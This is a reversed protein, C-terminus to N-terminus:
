RGMISLHVTRDIRNEYLPKWGISVLRGHLVGKKIKGHTVFYKDAGTITVTGELFGEVFTGKISEISPFKCTGRFCMKKQVIQLTALGDFEKQENLNGIYVFEIM